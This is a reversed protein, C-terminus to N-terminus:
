SDYEYPDLGFGEELYKMVKRGDEASKVTVDELMLLVAPEREALPRFLVREIKLRGAFGDVKLSTLGSRPESLLITSGPPPIGVLELYGSVMGVATGDECLISIDVSTKM